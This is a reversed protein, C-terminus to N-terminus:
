FKRKNIDEKECKAEYRNYTIPLVSEKSPIIRKQILLNGSYRELNFGFVLEGNENLEFASIIRSSVKLAYDGFVRSVFVNNKITIPLSTDDDGGLCIDAGCYSSFNGICLLKLNLQSEGMVLNPILLLLLLLKKM